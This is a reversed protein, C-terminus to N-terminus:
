DLLATIIKQENLLARRDVRLWTLAWDVKVGFQLLSRKKGRTGQTM